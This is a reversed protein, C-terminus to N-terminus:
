KRKNKEENEEEIKTEKLVGLILEVREKTPMEMLCQALEEKDHENNGYLLENVSIKRLKAIDLQRKKNPLCGGNEWSQVNSKVAHFLNGFQELTLGKSFRIKRIREGVEKKNIKNKM